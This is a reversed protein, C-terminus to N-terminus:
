RPHRSSRGVSLPYRVPDVTWGADPDTRRAALPYPDVDGTATSGAPLAVLAFGALARGPREAASPPRRADVRVV